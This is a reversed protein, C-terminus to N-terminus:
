RFAFKSLVRVVEITHNANASGAIVNLPVIANVIGGFERETLSELLSMIGYLGRRSRRLSCKLTSLTLADHLGADMKQSKDVPFM